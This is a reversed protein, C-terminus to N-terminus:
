YWVDLWVYLYCLFVDSYFLFFFGVHSCFMLDVRKLQTSKDFMQDELCFLNM